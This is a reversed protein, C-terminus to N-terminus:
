LRALSSRKRNGGLALTIEEDDIYRNFKVCRQPVQAAKYM